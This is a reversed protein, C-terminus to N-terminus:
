DSRARRAVRVGHWGVLAGEVLERERALLVVADDIQEVALRVLDLEAHEAREPGLVAAVLVAAREELHERGLALVDQRLDALLVGADDVDAVPEADRELDFGVVVRRGDLRVLAGRGADAADHAVDERHARPRDRQEVRQAEARECGDVGLRVRRLDGRAVPM